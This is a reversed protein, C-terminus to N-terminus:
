IRGRGLAVGMILGLIMQEARQEINVGLRSARFILQDALHQLVRRAEAREDETDATAAISGFKAASPAIEDAFAKLAARSQGTVWALADQLAESFNAVKAAPVSAVAEARANEMRHTEGRGVGPLGTTEHPDGATTKTKENM